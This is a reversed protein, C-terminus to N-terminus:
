TTEETMGTVIGIHVIGAAVLFNWRCSRCIDITTVNLIVVNMMIM